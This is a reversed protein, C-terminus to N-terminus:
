VRQLPGQLPVDHGPTWGTMNPRGVKNTSALPASAREDARRCWLGVVVVLGKMMRGSKCRAGVLFSNLRHAVNLLKMLVHPAPAVDAIVKQEIQRPANVLSARKGILTTRDILARREHDSSVDASLAPAINAHSEHPTNMRGAARMANILERRRGAVREHQQQGVQDVGVADIRQVDAPM